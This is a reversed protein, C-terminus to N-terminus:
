HTPKAYHLFPKPKHHNVGFSLWACKIRNLVHDSEDNASLHILLGALYGHHVSVCYLCLIRWLVHNQTSIPAFQVHRMSVLTYPSHGLHFPSWSAGYRASGYRVISYWWKKAQVHAHWVGFLVAKDRISASDVSLQSFTVRWTVSSHMGSGIWLERINRDVPVWPCM